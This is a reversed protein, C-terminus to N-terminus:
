AAVFSILSKDVIMAQDKGDQVPLPELPPAAQISGPGPSSSRKFTPSSPPDLPRISSQPIHYSVEPFSLELNDLYSIVRSTQLMDYIIKATKIKKLPTDAYSIQM